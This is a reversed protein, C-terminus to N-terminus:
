HRVLAFGAVSDNGEACSDRQGVGFCKAGANRAVRFGAGGGGAFGAKMRCGGVKAFGAMARHAPQREDLYVVRLHVGAVAVRAVVAAIGSASRGPVNGCCANAIGTVYRGSEAGARPFRDGENIM